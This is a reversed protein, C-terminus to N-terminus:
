HKLEVTVITDNKSGGHPVLLIEIMKFGRNKGLGMSNWGFCIAIGKPKIIRAIEDQYDEPLTSFVPDIADKKQVTISQFVSLSTTAERNLGESVSVLGVIAMVGIIIGVMTLATRTKRRLMNRYVLTIM